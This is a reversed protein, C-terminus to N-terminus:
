KVLKKVDTICVTNMINNCKADEVLSYATSASEFLFYLDDGYTCIEEAMPPLTHVKHLSYQIVDEQPDLDQEADYVYVKSNNNRGYSTAVALYTKGDVEIFDAGNAYAPIWIVKHMDAVQVGDEEEISYGILVGDGASFTGTWICNDYYTVFSTVNDCVVEGAPECMPYSYSRLQIYEDLTEYSFAEIKCNGGKAVWVYKGDFAIGGVHSRDDFVLTSLHEKTKKSLVYLVSNHREHTEESAKMIENAMEDSNKELAKKYSDINCYATILIYDGAVCIGQPTMCNCADGLVDTYSLDPIDFEECGALLKFDSKDSSNGLVFYKLSFFLGCFILASVLIGTVAKRILNRSHM